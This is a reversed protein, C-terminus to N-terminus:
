SSYVFIPMTSDIYSYLIQAAERPLNVCGHSGHKIYWDGGFQKQWSADHFGVGKNFPMWYQVWSAYRTGNDNYGRLIVGKGDKGMTKYTLYFMGSPTDHRPPKGTVCPTTLVCEGDVYLWLMQRTKDNEVYSLLDRPELGDKYIPERTIEKGEILDQIIQQKEADLDVEVKLKQSYVIPTTMGTPTFTITECADQARKNLEEVVSNVNEMDVYYNGAEDVKVWTKTTEKDLTYTSGDAFEFNIVAGLITNIANVRGNLNMDTSLVKPMEIFETFDLITEGREISETCFSIAKDFDIKSGIVEREITLTGDEQVKIHADISDTMQDEQLEEISSLTAKTNENSAELANNIQCNNYEGDNVQQNELISQLSVTANENLAIGFDEGRFVHQTDKFVLTISRQKLESSIKSIAKDVSLYSCDVGQIITDNAFHNRFYIESGKWGAVVLGALVLVLIIGALIPKPKSKAIRRGRYNSKRM